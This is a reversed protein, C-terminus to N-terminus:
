RLSFRLNIESPSLIQYATENNFNVAKGHFAQDYFGYIYQNEKEAKSKGLFLNHETSAVQSFNVYQANAATRGKYGLGLQNALRLIKAGKLTRDDHNITIYIRKQLSLKDVWRAHNGQKVAAANLILNSFLNEPMYKLLHKNTINKLIHNGMSHFIASVASSPYYIERLASLKNMAVVFNVAVEDAAYATKRLALYNTPWDFVVMNINFRGSLEFGRELVQDFTKGHGDVYVLFDRNEPLYRAAEDMTKVPMVYASDGITGAIFLFMRYRPQVGRKQSYNEDPKFYRCSIILTKNDSHSPLKEVFLFKYRSAMYESFNVGYGPLVFGLLVLSFIFKHLKM